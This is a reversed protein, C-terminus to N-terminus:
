DDDSGIEFWEWIENWIEQEIERKLEAETPKDTHKHARNWGLAIGQQICMGLVSQFKPRM